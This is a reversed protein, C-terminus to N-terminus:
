NLRISRYIYEAKERFKETSITLSYIEITYLNGEKDALFCQIMYHAVEHLFFQYKIFGIEDKGRTEVGSEFSFAHKWRASDSQQEAKVRTAADMKKPNYKKDRVDVTVQEEKNKSIYRTDFVVEYDSYRSYNDQRVWDKPVELCLRDQFMCVSQYISTFQTAHMFALFLFLSSKM